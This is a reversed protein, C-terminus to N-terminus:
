LRSYLHRASDTLAPGFMQEMLDPNFELDNSLSGLSSANSISHIDRSTFPLLFSAAREGHLSITCVEQKGTSRQAFMSKLQLWQSNSNVVVPRVGIISEYFEKVRKNIDPLKLMIQSARVHNHRQVVAQLPENPRYSRSVYVRQVLGDSETEYLHEVLSCNIVADNPLVLIHAVPCLLLRDRSPGFAVIDRLLHCSDSEVLEPGSIDVKTDILVRKSRKARYFRNRFDIIQLKLAEITLDIRLQLFKMVDDYTIQSMTEEITVYTLEDLLASFLAHEISSVATVDISSDAQRAISRSRLTQQVRDYFILERKMNLFQAFSRRCDQPLQIDDFLRKLNLLNDADDNHLSESNFVAALLSELIEFQSLKLYERESRSLCSLSNLEGCWVEYSNIEPISQYTGVDQYSHGEVQDKDLSDYMLVPGFMAESPIAHFLRSRIRKHYDVLTPSLINYGVSIMDLHISHKNMNSVTNQVAKLINSKIWQESSNSMDELLGRYEMDIQLINNNDLINPSTSARSHTWQPSQMWLTISNTTHTDAILLQPKITSIHKM